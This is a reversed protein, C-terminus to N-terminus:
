KNMYTKLMEVEKKMFPKFDEKSNLEDLTLWNIDITDELPKEDGHLYECLFTLGVVHAGDNRTFSNNYVLKINENITINVEELIETKLTEFLINFQDINEVKGGPLAWDGGAQLEKPSRRAILFKEDRRVWGKVLVIHFSAKDKTEM